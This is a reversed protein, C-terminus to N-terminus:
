YCEDCQILKRKLAVEGKIMGPAGTIKSCDKSAHYTGDFTYVNGTVTPTAADSESYVDTSVVPPVPTFTSVGTVMDPTIRFRLMGSGGFNSAPLELELYEFSGVPREFLLLDSVYEGPYLTEVELAGAIKHRFGFDVRKYINGYNDTVVAYDRTFAIDEGNWTRYEKKSNEANNAVTITIGLLHNESVGVESTIEDVLNVQGVEVSAIALTVDGQTVATEASAWDENAVNPNVARQNTGHAQRNAEDIAESVGSSAISTVGLAVFGSFGCLFLATVPLILGRGRKSLAVVIGIGALLGGLIAMPLGLIGLFPIWSILLAPICLVFAFISLVLSATNSRDPINVNVTPVGYQHGDQLPQASYGPQIPVPPQFSRPLVATSCAVDTSGLEFNQGLDHPSPESLMDRLENYRRELNRIETVSGGSKKHRKWELRIAEAERTLLLRTEKSIAM